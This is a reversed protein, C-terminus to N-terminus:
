QRASGVCQTVAEHSGRTLRRGGQNRNPGSEVKPLRAVSESKLPIQQRFVSSRDRYLGM